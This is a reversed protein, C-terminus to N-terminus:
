SQLFIKFIKLIKEEKGGGVERTWRGKAQGLVDLPPFHTPAIQSADLSAVAWKRRRLGRYLALPEGVAIRCKDVRPPSRRKQLVQEGSSPMGNGKVQRM